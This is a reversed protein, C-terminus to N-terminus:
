RFGGAIAVVANILLAALAADWVGSVSFGAVARGCLLILGIDIAFNSLGLTLCGIPLSILRVVPRIVLYAAALLIGVALAQEPREATIGPLIHFYAITPVALVCCVFTATARGLRPQHDSM